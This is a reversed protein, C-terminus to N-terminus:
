KIIYIFSAGLKAPFLKYGRSNWRSPEGVFYDDYNDNKHYRKQQFYLLSFGGSLEFRWKKGLLFSYGGVIGLSIANGNYVYDKHLIDYKAFMTTAGIFEEAFPRGSFWYRYEPQFIFVKSNAHTNNKGYGWPIAKGNVSALNKPLYAATLEISSRQGVVIEVGANPALAGWMLANTKVGFQQAKSEVSSLLLAVAFVTALIWTKHTMNRM